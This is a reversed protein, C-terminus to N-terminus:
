SRVGSGTDWRLPRGTTRSLRLLLGAMETGLPGLRHFRKVTALETRHVFQPGGAGARHATLQRALRTREEILQVLEEDRRDLEAQLAEGVSAAPAPHKRIQVHVHTLTV